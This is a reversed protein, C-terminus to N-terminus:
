ADNAAATTVCKSIDKGPLDSGPLNDAGRFSGFAGRFYVLPELMANSRAARVRGIFISHTGCDHQMTLECDASALADVLVPAGTALTTWEGIAFRQEGKLGTGGSFTAALGDQGAALLNVSFARTADIVAHASASKNVCVLLTPPSDSLSCAATATLGTRGGVHGTAVIVTAGAHHAMLERYEKSEM